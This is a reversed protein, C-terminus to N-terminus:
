RYNYRFNLVKTDKMSRLFMFQVNIKKLNCRYELTELCMNYDFM